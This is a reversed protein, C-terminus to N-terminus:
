FVELIEGREGELLAERGDSLVFNIDLLCKLDEAPLILIDQVPENPALHSQHKPRHLEDHVLHRLGEVKLVFLHVEVAFDLTVLVADEVAAIRLPVTVM